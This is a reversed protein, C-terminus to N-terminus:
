HIDVLEFQKERNHVGGAHSARRFPRFDAECTECSAKAGQPCVYPGSESAPPENKGLAPNKM